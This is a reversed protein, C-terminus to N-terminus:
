NQGMKLANPVVKLKFIIINELIKGSDLKQTKTDTKNKIM